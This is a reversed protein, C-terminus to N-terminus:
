ATSASRAPATRASPRRRRRAGELRQRQGARAKREDWKFLERAAISRRRARVREHRARASGNPLRRSRLAGQGRALQDPSDRGSRHRAAQGGEHDGARHHRQGADAGALAAAHAAAHQHARQDRAVADGRPQYILSAANGASRHDGMPGYAGNDQVIFLDLATIRGDKRFGIKVRGTMNTRARGIYSEEERSIRMMVPANAKKSLLAPIAMSVAGRARAASAAAAHVRLDARRRSPEIGVWRAIGDVRARSARRRATCTCSATRGTPWRAARKWRTIAPPSCSSRRTSCSRPTRSAPTSIASRGSKSAAQGDAAPRRAADAFDEDTWKCPRSAAGAAAAQAGPARRRRRPGLRQRRTARTRATRAAPERASRRRVAAARSRRPDARDRRGRDARRGRRRRSDARRRLAARQDARTRRRRSGASRRRHPDGQRRADGAGREHRHRARARAADPQAAAQLLAHRRRPLGRRLARPRHGQRRSRAAHLEPRDAQRLGDAYPRRMYEAGRMLATLIKDYDQCRCLNGSVGHALEERTPNPNTKLFGVAAMVFGPM